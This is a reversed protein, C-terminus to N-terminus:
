ARILAEDMPVFASGMREIGHRDGLAEAVARGLVIGVDEITHHADVELDGKAAVDLGFRGHRGFAHLLHDFFPLGTSIKQVGGDLAFTISVETEASRRAAAGKREAMKTRWCRACRLRPRLRRTDTSWPSRAREKRTRSPAVTM